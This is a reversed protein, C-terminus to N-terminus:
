LKRAVLCAPEGPPMNIRFLERYRGAQIQQILGNQTGIRNISIIVEDRDYNAWDVVAFQALPTEKKLQDIHLRASSLPGQIGVKHIPGPAETIVRRLAEGVCIGTYDGMFRESSRDFILRSKYVYGYSGWEIYDFAISLATVALVAPAFKSIKSRLAHVATLSLAFTVHVVLFLIHREEDFIKPQVLMVAAFLLGTMSWLYTFFRRSVQSPGDFIPEAGFASRVAIALGTATSAFIVPSLAVPFWLLYYYFPLNQNNITEGFYRIDGTWHWRSFGAVAKFWAFFGEQWFGPTAVIMIAAIFSLLLAIETMRRRAAMRSLAIAGMLHFVMPLRILAPLTAILFVKRSFRYRWMLLTTLLCVIALAADKTNFLAHGGLRIVGYFSLMAFAAEFRQFAFSRLLKYIWAGSFIFLMVNLASRVWHPNQIFSGFIKEFFALVTEWLPGYWQVDFWTIPDGFSQLGFFRAGILHSYRFQDESDWGTLGHHTVALSFGLTAISFLVFIMRKSRETM